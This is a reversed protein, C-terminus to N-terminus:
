NFIGLQVGLNTVYPNTEDVNVLDAYLDKIQSVVRSSKMQKAIKLGKAAIKASGELDKEAAYLHAETVLFYLQWENLDPTLANWALSLDNRADKLLEKRPHLSYLQLFARAREHHVGALTLYQYTRDQEIQGKYLINIAKEQWKRVRTELEQDIDVGHLSTDAAILYMNGKLPSRVNDLYTMARNADVKALDYRGLGAYIHARHVYSTAIMETDEIETAITLAQNIQSTLDKRKRIHQDFASSLQYYQCLLTLWAEKDPAAVTKVLASLKKLRRDVRDAVNLSGKMKNEWGMVLTNEYHYFTDEELIDSMHDHPNTYTGLNDLYVVLRWDLGLLAPPIKLLKALFVRREYPIMSLTEWEDITRKTVGAAISFDAATKFGRKERYYAVVRGMHPLIGEGPPFSGYRSWWYQTM